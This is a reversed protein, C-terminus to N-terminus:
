QNIYAYGSANKEIILQQDVADKLSDLHSIVIVTKFYMKILELIRVFGDMLEADLETAPEDLIFIDSKPLSSVNLLALRIAMASITKEAGSGMELPRPKYKPYKIFIDLKKGDNEFFVEFSVVNALIKSIENNIVPLKKKIVDYSIGDTHLCRLLLDYAEYEKRLTWFVKKQEQTSVLQQEYSGLSKASNLISGESTILTQKLQKIEGELVSKQHLIKELGDIKEKNAYYLSVTKEGEKILLQIDNIMNIIKQYEVKNSSLDMNLKLQEKVLLEYKEFYEDIKKVESNEIKKELEKLTEDIKNIDEKIKKLSISAEYADKIFKCHSYKGECPVQELLEAKKSNNNYVLTKSELSYQTNKLEGVYGDIRSKKQKLEEIDFTKSLFLDIKDLKEQKEKIIKELDEKKQELKEKKEKNLILKKEEKGIDIIEVPISAIKIDLKNNEEEKSAIKIKLKNFATQQKEIKLKNEKVLNQFKDIDEDYNVLEMKKLNAKLDAADEKALRFKKEFFELDLFRALIEKRKTSGENIYSLIGFQSSMNTLLFDDVTGFVKRINKDTEARSDGNLSVIEKTLLNKKYFDVSTKAEDSINNHLKKEYKESKRQIVYEFDGIKTKVIGECANKNQNIIDYNKRKNKSITNYVSYLLGEIISSKGSWNKGFIGISGRLNEFNIKNGKGYNFLNDWRFEVLEWNINRQIEEDTESIIFNYKRNLELVVKLVDQNIEYNKLFNTIMEEQVAIDRLNEQGSITESLETELHASSKNLFTISEPKFKSKAIDIVRKMTDFTVSSSAVLRLKANEPILINKPIRGKSTLELTIFPSPNDLKIHEVSFKEKSEIDWVLFGKDNEEGHNQQILSGSFRCNGQDDLIQNSRHIDGLFAFDFNKLEELSIDGYEMKWGVETESGKVVGHFLAINIKDPDSPKIIWNEKDCISLCNLVFDESIKVEQSNKLLYLNPHKLSWVIPTVADQRTKASLSCDHNGLIMYTPAIDALEKLFKSAIDVYAPSIATKNHALNGTQIIYDVKLDRLKQYLEKFIIKYTEHYKLNKIHIDSIHALRM